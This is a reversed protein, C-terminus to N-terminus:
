TTGLFFELTPTIVIAIPGDGRDVPLQNIIHRFMPLLFASTKGSDTKAIGIMNRGSLIIPLAQAQIPTPKEYKHKKLIQLFKDSTICPSWTKIPRSCQKGVIKINDLERRYAAVEAETMNAIESIDTYFFLKSKKSGMSSIDELDENRKTYEEESSYELGDIDQEM